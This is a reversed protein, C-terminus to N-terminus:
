QSGSNPPMMIPLLQNVPLRPTFKISSDKMSHNLYTVQDDISPHIGSDLCTRVNLKSGSCLLGGYQPRPNDCDRSRTETGEGCSKSCQSWSSWQSWAGDVIKEPKVYVETLETVEINWDINDNDAVVSCHGSCQDFKFLSCDGRVSCSTACAILGEGSSEVNFVTKVFENRWIIEPITHKKFKSEQIQSGSALGLISLKFM